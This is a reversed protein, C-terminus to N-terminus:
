ALLPEVDSPSPMSPQAGRRTVAFAGAAMGLEIARTESLGRALGCALGANFADGAATSDIADVARAAFAHTGEPTVLLAGREAMKVLVKRAGRTLLRRARMEAESATLTAGPAGTLLCLESENPTLYDAALLADPLPRAPTPDLVVLSGEARALQLALEVTELPIELQLLVVKAGEFAPALAQLQAPGFAGNAGAVIVIQNQGTADVSIMATGSPTNSEARVFSTDVGVSQLEGRLWHGHEDEGVQGLMRVAAGLKAAGYAQNGGKGGPFKSLSKAAVTEGPAPFHPVDLVLDANLSGVVLIEFPM